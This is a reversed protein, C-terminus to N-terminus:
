NFNKREFYKQAKKCNDLDEIAREIVSSDMDELEPFEELVEEMNAGNEIGEMIFESTDRDLGIDEIEDLWFNKRGEINENLEEISGNNLFDKELGISEFLAGARKSEYNKRNTKVSPHYNKSYKSNPHEKVYAKKQEETLTDFWSEATLKLRSYIKM